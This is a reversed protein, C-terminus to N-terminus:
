EVPLIGEYYSAVRREFDEDEPYHKARSSWDKFCDTCQWHNLVPVLYGGEPHFEGCEDCICLGGWSLVEEGSTRYAILGCPLTLKKM